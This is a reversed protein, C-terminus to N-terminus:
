SCLVYRLASVREPRMACGYKGSSLVNLSPALPGFCGLLTLASYPYKVLLLFMVSRSIKSM